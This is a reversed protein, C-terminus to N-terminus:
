LKESHVLEVFIWGKEMLMVQLVIVSESKYTARNTFIYQSDVSNQHFNLFFSHPNSKQIVGTAPANFKTNCDKHM